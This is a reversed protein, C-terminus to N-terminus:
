YLKREIRILEWYHFVAIHTQSQFLRPIQERYLESQSSSSAASTVAIEM